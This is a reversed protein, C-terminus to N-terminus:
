QGGGLGALSALPVLKSDAPPVIMLHVAQDSQRPRLPPALEFQVRAGVLRVGVLAKLEPSNALHFFWKEGSDERLYGWAKEANYFDIIAERM